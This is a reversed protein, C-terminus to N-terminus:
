NTYEQILSKRNPNPLGTSATQQLLPRRVVRLARGRIRFHRATLRSQLPTRRRIAAATRVHRREEAAAARRPRAGPTRHARCSRVVRSRRQAELQRHRREQALPTQLRQLRWILASRLNEDTLRSRRKSKINNLASFSAEYFINEYTSSFLSLIRTDLLKITPKQISRWFRIYDNQLLEYHEAQLEILEDQLPALNISFPKSLLLLLKLTFTIQNRIFKSALHFLQMSEQDFRHSFDDIINDLILLYFEIRFNEPM